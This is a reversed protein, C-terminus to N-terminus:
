IPIWRPQHPQGAELWQRTGGHSDRLSPGQLHRREGAPNAQALGETGEGLDDEPSRRSLRQPQPLRTGGRDLDAPGPESKAHLLDGYRLGTSRRRSVTGPVDPGGTRPFSCSGSGSHKPYLNEKPYAGTDQGPCLNPHPGSQGSRLRQVPLRSRREVLLHGSPRVSGPVKAALVAGPAEDATPAADGGTREYRPRSGPRRLLRQRGFGRLLRAGLGPHIGAGPLRAGQGTWQLTTPFRAGLLPLLQLEHLHRGCLQLLGEVQGTRGGLTTFSASPSKKFRSKDPGYVLRFHYRTEPRLGEVKIKVIYDNEPLAALWATRISNKFDAGAAVEFRAIGGIGLVGSWRPDVLRETSTLRSQLIATTDDVAGVMLGHGLEMPFPDGSQAFSWNGLTLFLAVASIRVWSPRVPPQQRHDHLGGLGPM